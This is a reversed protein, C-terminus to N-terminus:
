KFCLGHVTQGAAPLTASQALYDYNAGGIAVVKSEKITVM